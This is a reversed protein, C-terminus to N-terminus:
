INSLIYKSIPILCTETNNSKYQDAINLKLVCIKKIIILLWSSCFPEININFFNYNNILFLLYYSVSWKCFISFLMFLISFRLFYDNGYIYEPNPCNM